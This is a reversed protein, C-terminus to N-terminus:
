IHTGSKRPGWTQPGCFDELVAWDVRPGRDTKVYSLGSRFEPGDYKTPCKPSM